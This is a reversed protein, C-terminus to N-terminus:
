DRVVGTAAGAAEPVRILDKIGDDESSSARWLRIQAQAIPGFAVIRAPNWKRRLRALRRLTYLDWDLDSAFQQQQQSAPFVRVATQAQSVARVSRL